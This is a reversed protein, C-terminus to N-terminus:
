VPGLRATCLHHHVDLQRLSSSSTLESFAEAPIPYFAPHVELSLYSLQQLRPLVALLAQRPRTNTVRLHQLQTLVSVSELEAPLDLGMGQALDLRLLNPLGVWSTIGPTTYGLHLTFSTLHTLASIGTLAFATVRDPRDEPWKLSLSRLTSLTSLHQLPIQDADSTGQHLALSTLSACRSLAQLFGGHLPPFLMSVGATGAHCISELLLEQLSGPLQQQLTSLDDTLCCILSLQQLQTAHQLIGAGPQRPATQRISCCELRLSRLKTCPLQSLDLAQQATKILSSKILMSRQLHAPM